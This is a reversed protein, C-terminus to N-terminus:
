PLAALFKWGSPISAQTYPPTSFTPNAPAGPPVGYSGKKLYGGGVAPINANITAISWGPPLNAYSGSQGPGFLAISGGTQSNYAVDTGPNDVPVTSITPAASVTPSTLVPAASGVGATSGDGSSSGAATPDSGAVQGSLGSIQNQLNELMPEIADYIDSETSDYGPSAGTAAPVTETSLTAAAANTKTRKWLAYIVVLVAAGAVGALEKRRGTLQAGAAAKAPPKPPPAAPPAPNTM